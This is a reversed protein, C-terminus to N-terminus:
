HTESDHSPCWPPQCCSNTLKEHSNPHAGTRYRELAKFNLEIGLGLQIPLSIGGNELVPENRVMERRLTSESLPTPLFEICPCHATAASMQVSAWTGIATKWRHPVIPRGRDRAMDYVRRAKALGGM